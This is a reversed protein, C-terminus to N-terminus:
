TVGETTDVRAGSCVAGGVVVVLDVVVKIGRRAVIEVVGAGWGVDGDVITERFVLASFGVKLGRVLM